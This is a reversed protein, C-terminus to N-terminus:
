SSTRTPAKLDIAAAMAGLSRRDPKGSGALKPLEVVVVVRLPVKYAALRAACFARLAGEADAMAAKLAVFAM